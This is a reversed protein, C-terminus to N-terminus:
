KVNRSGLLNGIIESPSTMDHTMDRKNNKSVGGNM